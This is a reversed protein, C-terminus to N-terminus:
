SKYHEWCDGISDGANGEGLLGHIVEPLQLGSAPLLISKLGCCCCTLAFFFLTWHNWLSGAAVYFTSRASMKEEVHNKHQQADDDDDDGGGDDDDRGPVCLVCPFFGASRSGFGFRPRFLSRPLDVRSYRELARRVGHRSPHHHRSPFGLRSEGVASVGGETM